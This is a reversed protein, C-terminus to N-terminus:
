RLLLSSDGYSLFRYDHTLAYDYIEKWNGDVFASVLLLLTSQPQHFNTIMGRIVRFKFSPAIMIQTSGIYRDLGHRDLHAIIAQLADKISISYEKEYPAWQKVRLEDEDADPNDLLTIGIYYLSELTRVSTTGVAIVNGETKILDNLLSREVSIFETHMAHEGISESKVPQFTGAGVHLTLERRIVGRKDCEAM